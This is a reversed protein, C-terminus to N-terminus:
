TFGDLRVSFRRFFKKVGRMKRMTSAWGVLCDDGKEELHPKKETPKRLEVCFNFFCVM